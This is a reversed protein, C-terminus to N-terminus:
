SLFFVFSRSHSIRLLFFSRKLKLALNECNLHKLTTFHVLFINYRIQIQFAEAYIEWVNGTEFNGKFDGFDLKHKCELKVPSPRVNLFNAFELNSPFESCFDLLCTQILGSFHVFIFICVQGTNLRFLKNFVKKAPSHLSEYIEVTSIM